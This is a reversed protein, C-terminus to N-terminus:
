FATLASLSGKPGAHVARFPDALGRSLSLGCTALYAWGASGWFAMM